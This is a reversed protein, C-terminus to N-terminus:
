IRRRERELMLEWMAEGDPEAQYAALIEDDTMSQYEPRVVTIAEYLAQMDIM